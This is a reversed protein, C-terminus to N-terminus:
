CHAMGNQGSVVFNDVYTHVALWFSLILLGVALGGIIDVPSHM